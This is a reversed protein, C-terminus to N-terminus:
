LKGKQNLIKHRTEVNLARQAQRRKQHVAFPTSSASKKYNEYMAQMELSKKFVDVGTDGGKLDAFNMHERLKRRLYRGLPLKSSGHRLMSPVDGTRAVENWGHKNFLASAVDALASAGIGPRLSMRAFEPYRGNLRADDKATLKKTVYGAIYQASQLTLDGWYLNGMGWDKKFQICHCRPDPCRFDCGCPPVGFLAAHYHPRETQDGYEGVLFYRLPTHKRVRKLFLQCHRPDLSGAPPLCEDAYTMTLFSASSSVLAELVIRHSWLRRRNIRCPMCQGCGFAAGGKHFPKKCLM